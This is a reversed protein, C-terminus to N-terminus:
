KARKAVFEETAVEGVQRTFKIEDGSIKGKYAIRLAQGQFDLNEIFAIEDGKVTGEAIETEGFQSKAKGTLKGGDVKFDYTYNQVGIQTDIAATWKGAVEAGFAPAFMALALMASLLLKHFTMTFRGNPCGFRGPTLQTPAGGRGWGRAVWLLIARPIVRGKV